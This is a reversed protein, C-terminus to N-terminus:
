PELDGTFYSELSIGDPLSKIRELAEDNSQMLRQKMATLWDFRMCSLKFTTIPGGRSIFWDERYINRNLIDIFQGYIRGTSPECFLVFTDLNKKYELFLKHAFGTAKHQRMRDKYKCEVNIPCQLELDPEATVSKGVVIFGQDKLLPIVLKEWLEGRKLEEDFNTSKM